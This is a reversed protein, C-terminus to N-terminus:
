SVSVNCSSVGEDDSRVPASSGPGRFKVMANNGILHLSFDRVVRVTRSGWVIGFLKGFLNSNYRQKWQAAAM